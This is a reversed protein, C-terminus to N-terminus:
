ATGRYGTEKKDNFMEILEEYSIDPIGDQNLDLFIEDSEIQGNKNKDWWYFDPVGNKDVDFVYVEAGQPIYKFRDKEFGFAPAISIGAFLLALLTKKM